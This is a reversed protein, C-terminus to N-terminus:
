GDFIRKAELASSVRVKRAILQAYLSEVNLGTYHAQLLFHFAIGTDLHESASTEVKDRYRLKVLQPCRLLQSWFRWGRSPPKQAIIGAEKLVAECADSM